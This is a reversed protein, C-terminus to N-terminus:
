EVVIGGLVTINQRTLLELEDTIEDYMTSGVKEVLVACNANELEAMTEANYLINDLIRSEIGEEGLIVQIRRCQETTKNQIDCGVLYVRKSASQKVAMKIAVAAMNIADETAFKRKDRKKLSLLWEDIFNFLKSSKKLAPIVGLQPLAYIEMLNDSSRLKNDLIYKMFVYFIYIFSMVLMGVVVHYPSANPEIINFEEQKDEKTGSIEEDMNVGLKDDEEVFYNYYQKEEESFQGKLNVISNRYSMIDAECREQLAFYETSVVTSVSQDLVSVEHEGLIDVLQETKDEVYAIMCDAIKQCQEEDMCYISVRVIDNGRQQGASTTELSIMQSPDYIIECNKKIYDYLGTSSVVDEYVKQINYTKEVDDSQIWFTIDARPLNFPNVNMVLLEEQYMCKNNYIQEYTLVNKVNNIQLETLKEELRKKDIEETDAAGANEQEMQQLAARQNQAEAYSSAYSVCGFLIGGIVMWVIIVRWRLLIEILLDLLNIEKEYLRKRGVEQM